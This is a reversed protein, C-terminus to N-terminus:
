VGLEKLINCLLVGQGIADDLAVHTHPQNGFWRRPMNRKISERYPRKLAIMAATKVDLGSHSFPSEGVFRILYGYIFMFDYTAPYGSFVPKGPLSRIWAVYERMARDRAIEAGKSM